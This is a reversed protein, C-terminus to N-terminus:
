EGAGESKHQLSLSHPKRKLVRIDVEVGGGGGETDV